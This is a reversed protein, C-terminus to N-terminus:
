AACASTFLFTASPATLVEDYDDVVRGKHNRNDKDHKSEVTMEEKLFLTISSFSPSGEVGELDGPRSCMFPKTDDMVPAAVRTAGKRSTVKYSDEVRVEYGYLRSPLGYQSNPGLGQEIEKLADTSGKIHDVLEQSVAVKRAYGPSCVFILDKPEVAGLTNKRIIDAAYDLSRKIDKRATTSEDHKGTGIASVAATNSAAYNAANQVMAMVRVTRATMMRQAHIRAHQALIDWEAQEVAMQGLQFATAYRQTLYGKFEFSEQGAAGSPADNNDAWVLDSLDSNLIRGAMEVTMEIYRGVNQKVPVYQVYKPLAFKNPNRSFDIVLNKTAATNPLFTNFQGPFAASM